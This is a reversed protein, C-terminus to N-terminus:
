GAGERATQAVLGAEEGGEAGGVGSVWVLVWSNVDLFDIERGDRECGLEGYDSVGVQEEANVAGSERM